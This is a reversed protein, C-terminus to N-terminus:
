INSILAKCILGDEMDCINPHHTSKIHGKGFKIRHGRYSICFALAGDLTPIRHYVHVYYYVTPQLKYTNIKYLSIPYFFSLLHSKNLDDGTFKMPQAFHLEFRKGQVTQKDQM